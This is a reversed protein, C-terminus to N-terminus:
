SLLNDVTEADGVDVVQRIEGDIIHRGGMSDALDALAKMGSNIANALEDADMDTLEKDQPGQLAAGHGAQELVYKSANFRTQAPVLPDTMLADITALATTAMDGNLKYIRRDRIAEVIRKDRMLGTAASPAHAYGAYRAANTNSLGRVVGTVFKEQMTTFQQAKAPLHKYGM